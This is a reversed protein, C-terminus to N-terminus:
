AAMREGRVRSVGHPHSLKRSIEREECLAQGRPAPAAARKSERRLAALGTPSACGIGTPWAWPELEPSLEDLSLRCHRGSSWQWLM